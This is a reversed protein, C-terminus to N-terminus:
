IKSCLKQMWATARVIEVGKQTFRADLHRHFPLTFSLMWYEFRTTLIKWVNLQLTFTPASTDSLTIRSILQNLPKNHHYPPKDADIYWCVEGWHILTLPIFRVSIRPIPALTESYNINSSFKNSESAFVFSYFHFLFWTFIINSTGFQYHILLFITFNNHDFLQSFNCFFM